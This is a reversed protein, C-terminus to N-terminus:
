LGDGDGEGGAKDPVHPTSMLCMSLKLIMPDMFSLRFPERGIGTITPRPEAAQDRWAFEQNVQNHTDSSHISFWGM